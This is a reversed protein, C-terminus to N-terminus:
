SCWTVCEYKLLPNSASWRHVRWFNPSFHVKKKISLEWHIAKENMPDLSCPHVHVSWQTWSCNWSNLLICFISRVYSQPLVNKKNPKECEWLLKWWEETKSQMGWNRHSNMPIGPSTRSHYPLFHLSKSSLYTFIHNMIFTCVCRNFQSYAFSLFTHSDINSSIEM